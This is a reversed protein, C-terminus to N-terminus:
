PTSPQLLLWTHNPSVNHIDTNYNDLSLCHPGSSCDDPYFVTFNVTQKCVKYKPNTNWASIKGLCWGYTPWKLLIHQGIMQQGAPDLPVLM